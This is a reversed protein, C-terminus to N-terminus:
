YLLKEYLKPCAVLLSEYTIDVDLLLRHFPCMSHLGFYLATACFIPKLMDRKWCFQSGIYCYQEGCAWTDDCVESYKALLNFQHDKLSITENIEPAIFQCFYSLSEKALVTRKIRLTQPASLPKWFSLKTRWTWKCFSAAM